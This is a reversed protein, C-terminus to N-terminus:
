VEEEIDAKIADLAEMTERIAEDIEQQIRRDQERMDEIIKKMGDAILGM